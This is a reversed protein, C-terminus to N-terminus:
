RKRAFGCGNRQKLEGSQIKSYKGLSNIVVILVSVLKSYPSPDLPTTKINQVNITSEEYETHLKNAAEPEDQGADEKDDEDEESDGTKSLVQAGSKMFGAYQEPIIKKDGPFQPGTQFSSGFGPTSTSGSFSSLFTNPAGQKAAPKNSTSFSGFTGFLSTQGEKPQIQKYEGFKQGFSKTEEKKTSPADSEGVALDVRPASRLFKRKMIEEDVEEGSEKM